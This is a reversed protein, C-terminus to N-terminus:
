RAGDPTILLVHQTARDTVSVFTWYEMGPTLPTVRIDFRQHEHLEPFLAALDNIGQYGPHARSVINDGPRLTTSGILQGSLTLLEIRVSSGPLWRPDYVRLAVRTQDDNPIAPLTVPRILYENEWVIPIEIGNPQARRSLELLRASLTVKEAIGTLFGGLVVGRDAEHSVVPLARSTEGRAYVPLCAFGGPCELLGRQLATLTVESENHIWIETAWQSGYAGGVVEGSRVVVPILADVLGDGNTDRQGYLSLPFILLLAPLCRSLRLNTTVM